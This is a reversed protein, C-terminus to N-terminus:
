LDCGYLTLELSCLNVLQALNPWMTQRNVHVNAIQRLPFSPLSTHYIHLDGDETEVMM